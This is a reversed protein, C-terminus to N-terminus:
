KEKLNVKKILLISDYKGGVIEYDQIEIRKKFLPMDLVLTEYEGGEGAPNVYKMVKVLEDLTRFDLKRGLMSKDLPYGSIRVFVIEFGLGIVEKLVSVEDRLWLPNFCWLDLKDCVRQFRTAQYTSRIAGTVVGEIGYEKRAKELARILASVSGAEDDPSKERVLPIGLAKSQYETIEVNPYHFLYSEESEPTISVLCAVEFHEWAKLLALNSDKGGSYLVCVKM